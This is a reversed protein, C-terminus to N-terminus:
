SGAPATSRDLTTSSSLFLLPEAGIGVRVDAGVREESLDLRFCRRMPPGDLNVGAAPAGLPRRRM